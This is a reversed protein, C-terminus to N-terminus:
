DESPPPRRTPKRGPRQRGRERWAEVEDRPILWVRGLVREGRMLGRELRYRITNEHVGLARAAEQVSM